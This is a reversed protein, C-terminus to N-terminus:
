MGRFPGLAGALTDVVDLLERRAEPTLAGYGRMREPRLDELAIELLHLRIRVAHAAGVPPREIPIGLDELMQLMLRRLHEVGQQLEARVAAPLDQV